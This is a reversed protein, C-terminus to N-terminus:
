PGAAEVIAAHAGGDVLIDIGNIFSAADSLLFAATGAVEEPRGERGLPTQETINKNTERSAAEQRGMPTDIIGPSVSCIRAGRRGYRVAERRVLRLVGLKAWSYAIGPHAITPGIADHLRDAFDPALPAALAAQVAPKPTQPLFTAAISGFCVVATGPGAMPLLAETLLASGVLDVALIRRWDGMTPSIGAAHAVARLTGLETTRTVLRGLGVPDTIDLPFTEIRAQHGVTRLTTATQAMQEETLDVLLLVDVMDAILTACAAGMGRGAGTVIGVSTM